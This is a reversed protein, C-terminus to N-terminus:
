PTPEHPIVSVMIREVDDRRCVIETVHRTCLSVDRPFHFGTLSELVSSKGASQDGVVVIQPLPIDTVGLSRLKDIKDLYVRNGLGTASQVAADKAM